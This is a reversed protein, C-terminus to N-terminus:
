PLLQTVRGQRAWLGKARLHKTQLKLDRGVRDQLFCRSPFQEAQLETDQIYPSLVSDRRSSPSWQRTLGADGPRLYDGSTSPSTFHTSNSQISNFETQSTGLGLPLGSGLNAATLTAQHASHGAQLGAEQGCPM